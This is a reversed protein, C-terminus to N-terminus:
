DQRVIRTGITDGTDLIELMREPHHGDIFWVQGVNRSIEFAREVKLFIGGTVDISSEHLGSFGTEVTLRPILKADNTSDTMVGPTGGMAFITCLVDPLENSLRLMLDDGSLIGFDMPPDCKVVDGFTVHIGPSSFVNLDGLFAGGTNTVFERPPHSHIPLPELANLVHNHLRDMDRRVLEIAEQQELEPVNGEALRYQKARIHGFSGAGHVIILDHGMEYIKRVTDALSQIRDPLVTCLSSKETILGGGWKMVIRGMAETHAEHEFHYRRKM